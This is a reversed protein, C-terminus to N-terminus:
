QEDAAWALPQTENALGMQRLLYEDRARVVEDREGEEYTFFGRGTKLGLRGRRVLEELFSPPRTMSSLDAFLYESIKLFVDLGGLDATAFPGLCPYRLGVGFRVTRDVDEPSM